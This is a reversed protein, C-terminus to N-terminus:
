QICGNFIVHVFFDAIEEQNAESSFSRGLRQVAGSKKSLYSGAYELPRALREIWDEAGFETSQM